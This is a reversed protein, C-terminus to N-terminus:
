PTRRKSSGKNTVVTLIPRKQELRHRLNRARCHVADQSVGFKKMAEKVTRCAMFAQRPMLFAAAFINAQREPDHLPQYDKSFARYTPLGCHLVLHGFEHAATFRSRGDGRELALYVSNKLKIIPRQNDTLGELRGMVSDEEIQFAYGDIVDYLVHELIPLMSVRGSLDLDLALRVEEAITEVERKTRPAVIRDNSRPVEMRDNSRLSLTGTKAM